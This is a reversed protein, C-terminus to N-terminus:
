SRRPGSAFWVPPQRDQKAGEDIKGGFAHKGIAGFEEALKRGLTDLIVERSHAGTERALIETEHSPKGDAGIKKVHFAQAVPVHGYQFTIETNHPLYTIGARALFEQTPRRPCNAFYEQLGSEVPVADYSAVLASRLDGWIDKVTRNRTEFAPIATTRVIKGDPAVKTVLFSRDSRYGAYLGDEYRVMEFRGRADHFRLDTDDQLHFIGIGLLFKDTPRKARETMICLRSSTTSNIDM